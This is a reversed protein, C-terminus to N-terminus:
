WLAFINIHTMISGTTTLKNYKIFGIVQFGGLTAQGKLHCARKFLGHTTRAIM